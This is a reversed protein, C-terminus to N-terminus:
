EFLSGELTVNSDLSVHEACKKGGDHERGKGAGTDRQYRRVLSCGRAYRDDSRSPALLAASTPRDGGRPSRAGHAPDDERVVALVPLDHHLCRPAAGSGVPEAPEDRAVDDAGSVRAAFRDVPDLDPAVAEAVAAGDFRVRKM